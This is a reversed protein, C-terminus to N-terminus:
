CRMSGANEADFDCLLNVASPSMVANCTLLQKLKSAYLSRAQVRKAACYVSTPVGAKYVVLRQM